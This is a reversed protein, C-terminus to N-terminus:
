LKTTNVKFVFLMGIARVEYWTIGGYGGILVM